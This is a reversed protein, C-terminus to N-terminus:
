TLPAQDAVRRLGVAMTPSPYTMRQWSSPATVTSHGAASLPYWLLAEDFFIEPLGLHLGDTFTYGLVTSIGAFAALTDEDSTLHRETYELVATQYENM